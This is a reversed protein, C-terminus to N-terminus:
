SRTRHHHAPATRRAHTTATPPKPPAAPRFDVKQVDVTPTFGTTDCGKHLRTIKGKVKVRDGAKPDDAAHNHDADYFKVKDNDLTFTQQGTPAHHAKQVDVVVNGSYRDDHKGPTGTGATQTLSESVLLGKARFRASHPACRDAHTKAQVTPATHQKHPPRTPRAQAPVAAVAAVLGAIIIKKNM